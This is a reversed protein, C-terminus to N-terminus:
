DNRQAMILLHKRVRGQENVSNSCFRQYNFSYVYHGYYHSSKVDFDPGAYFMAM